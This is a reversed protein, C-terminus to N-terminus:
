LQHFACLKILMHKVEMDGESFVTFSDHFLLKIGFCISKDLAIAEISLMEFGISSKLIAFTLSSICIQEGFVRQPHQCNILLAGLVGHGQWSM